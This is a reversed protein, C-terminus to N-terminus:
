RWNQSRVRAEDDRDLPDGDSMADLLAGMQAEYRGGAGHAGHASIACRHARSVAGAM